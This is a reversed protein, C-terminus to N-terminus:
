PGTSHASSYVGCPQAGVAQGARRPAHDGGQVAAGGVAAARGARTLTRQLAARVSALASFCRVAVCFGPWARLAAASPADPWDPKQTVRSPEASPPPRDAPSRRDYIPAISPRAGAGSTRGRAARQACAVTSARRGGCQGRSRLAAQRAHAARCPRAAATGHQPLCSVGRPHLTSATAKQFAHATGRPRRAWACARRSSRAAIGRDACLWTLRRQTADRHALRTRRTANPRAQAQRSGGVAGRKRAEARCGDGRGGGAAGDGRM